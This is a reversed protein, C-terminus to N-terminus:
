GRQPSCSSILTSSNLIKLSGSESYVMTKLEASLTTIYKLSNLTKEDDSMVLKTDHSMVLKTDDSM